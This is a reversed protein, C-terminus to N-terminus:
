SCLARGIAFRGILLAFKSPRAAEPEALSIDLLNPACKPPASLRAEFMKDHLSRYSARLQAGIL